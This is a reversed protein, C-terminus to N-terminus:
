SLLPPIVLWLIETPGNSTVNFSHPVQSGYHVMDGGQLQHEEDDIELTASGSLVLAFREGAQREEDEPGSPFVRHVLATFASRRGRGNLVTFEDHANPSVRLKEPDGARSVFVRSAVPDTPFFDNVPMDLASALKALASLSPVTTGSEIQSVFGPSYGSERALDGVRLGKAQRVSRLRRGVDAIALNM